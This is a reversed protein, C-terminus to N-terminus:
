SVISVLNGVEDIVIVVVVYIGVILVIGILDFSWNGRGDIIFEFDIGFIYFIGDVIVILIINDGFDVIGNFIFMSDSIIFDGVVGFDNLISDFM